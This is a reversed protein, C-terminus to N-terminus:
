VCERFAVVLRKRFDDLGAGTSLTDLILDAAAWPYLARAFADLPIMNQKLENFLQQDYM